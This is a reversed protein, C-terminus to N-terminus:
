LNNGKVTLLFPSLKVEKNLDPLREYTSFPIAVSFGIGTIEIVARDPSKFVLKGKLYDFM